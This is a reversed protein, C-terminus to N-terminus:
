CTRSPNALTKTPSPTPCLRNRQKNPDINLDNRRVFRPSPSYAVSEVLVALLTREDEIERGFDITLGASLIAFMIKKSANKAYKQPAGAGNRQCLPEARRSRLAARGLFAFFAAAFDTFHTAESRM